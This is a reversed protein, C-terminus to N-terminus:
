RDLNEVYEDEGRYFISPKVIIKRDFGSNKLTEEAASSVVCAGVVYEYPIHHPILIEACKIAKRDRREFFDGETWYQAYIKNFDLKRIGVEASFFRVLSAAANRDSVVCDDINLVTASLALICLVDAQDKRRFLMPNHYTFYLNAYDHLNYGGPVCVCERRAQVEDLAVSLHHLKQAANYCLIGNQIISSINDLPTINYLYKQGTIQLFSDSVSM